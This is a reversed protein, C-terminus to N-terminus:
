STMVCTQYNLSLKTNPLQPSPIIRYRKVARGLMAVNIAATFFLMYRVNSIHLVPIVERSDRQNAVPRPWESIM